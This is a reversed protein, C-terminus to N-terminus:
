IFEFLIVAKWWSLLRKTVGLCSHHMYEIPFSNVMNTGFTTLVSTGNHHNKDVQFYFDQDTRLKCNRELFCVHKSHSDYEGVVTCKECCSYATHLKIKKLSSRAPADCVYIGNNAM